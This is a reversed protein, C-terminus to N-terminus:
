MVRSVSASTPALGVALRGATASQGRNRGFRLARGGVAEAKEEYVVGRSAIRKFGGFSRQHKTV